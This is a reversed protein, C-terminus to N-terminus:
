DDGNVQAFIERDIIGQHHNQILVKDLEGNNAVQKGEFLNKVYTKQLLVNGVYKENRLIKRITERSWRDKGRPSPIGNEHLWDAIRELSFGGARMEFIERVVEAERDNVCLNGHADQRFGYCTFDAYGSTGRKFGQRIGWKINRSMDESQNQAFAFFCTILMQVRQDHLWLNEQEFYVDVGLEKLNQLTKLADLTNRGFRSISKTLIM